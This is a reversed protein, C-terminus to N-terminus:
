LRVTMGDNLSNRYARWAPIAGLILASASVIAIIQVDYQDPTLGTLYLGYRAEIWPAAFALGIYTLAVGLVAGALAILGSETILLLFIHGPRAGLARLIAMERRRENLSTLITTLISILGTLVVFAAIAALTREAAGLVNWLQALAVGPMVAQLAEEPYTNIQRQLRLTAVPSSLGLYFATIARPSLDRQRLQDMSLGTGRGTAGELHIAEIAELTVFVSRDVPTGTRELVGVITFPNQDHEVFSVEGMGHAVIIEQGLEYGLIEAVQAGIVTEFLDSFQTGSQLTLSRRDAYQYHNFFASNTGVVRFGRHSDGLSIPVTWAVNPAQNVAEYSEWTINNTADGIHFVSYLMLNIPSSRAGVILNVGSITNEFSARAGLRIKEVSVFLTVSIAVTLLTLLATGARNSISRMAISLIPARNSM